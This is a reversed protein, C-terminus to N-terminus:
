WVADYFVEFEFRLTHASYFVIFSICEFLASHCLTSNFLLYSCLYSNFISNLLSNFICRGNYSRVGM